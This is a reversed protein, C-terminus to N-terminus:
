WMDFTLITKNKKKDVVSNTRKHMKQKDFRGQGILICYYPTIGQDIPPTWEVGVLGGKYRNFGCFFDVPYRGAVHGVVLPVM